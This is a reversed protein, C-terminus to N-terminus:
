IQTFGLNLLALLTEAERLNLVAKAVRDVPVGWRRGEHPYSDVEVIVLRGHEDITAVAAEGDVTLEAFLWTSLIDAYGDNRKPYDFKLM